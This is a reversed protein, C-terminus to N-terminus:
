ASATAVLVVEGDFERPECRVRAGPSFRWKEDAPAADPLRYVDDAEALAVVPRWVDVAEDLLQVYITRETAVVRALNDAALPPADAIPWHQPIDQGLPEPTSTLHALGVSPIESDSQRSLAEDLLKIPSGILSKSWGPQV